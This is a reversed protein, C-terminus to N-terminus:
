ATLYFIGSLILLHAPYFLYFGYQMWKNKRGPKGNYCSTLLIAIFQFAGELLATTVSLHSITVRLVGYLLLSGVPPILSATLYFLTGSQTRSSRIVHSEYFALILPIGLFAYECRIQYSLVTFGAVVLLGLLHGITRYRSRLQELCILSLLGLSLVALSNLRSFLVAPTQWLMALPQHTIGLLLMEYPIQSLVALGALRGLYRWRNHTYRFGNAILFCYIPFALRGFLSWAPQDAFFLAGVHDCVMSLMAIWKLWLANIPSRNTLVAM